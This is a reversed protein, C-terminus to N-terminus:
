DETRHRAEVSRLLGVWVISRWRSRETVSTFASKASFCTSLLAWHPTQGRTQAGHGLRTSTHVDGDYCRHQSRPARGHVRGGPRIRHQPPCTAEGRVEVRRRAPRRRPGVLVPHAWAGHEESASSQSSLRAEGALGRGKKEDNRGHKRFSHDVSMAELRVDKNRQGAEREMGRTGLNLWPGTDRVVGGGSSLIM